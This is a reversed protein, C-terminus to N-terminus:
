RDVIKRYQESWIRLCSSDSTPVHSIIHVSEGDAEAQELVSVLWKLHDFPDEDDYILYFNNIYCVNSNLGIIRLGPKALTTYYGGKLITAQTDNPLWRSWQEAM